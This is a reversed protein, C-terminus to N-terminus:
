RAGGTSARVALLDSLRDMVGFLGQVLPLLGRITVEGSGLAVVAPRKGSLVALAAEPGGFELRASPREPAEDFAEILKGRKRVGLSFAGEAVIATTGDPVHALRDALWPDASGVAALGYVAATAALRARAAIPITADALAAGARPAAARFWRLAALAGPGGPIPIPMGGAGSLAKACARPSTFRLTLSVLGKPRRGGSVASVSLPHPASGKRCSVYAPPCGPCSLKLLFPRRAAEALSPDVGTTAAALHAAVELRLRAVVVVERSSLQEITPSPM